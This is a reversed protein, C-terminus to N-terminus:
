RTRTLPPRASWCPAPSVTTVESVALSAVVGTSGATTAAADLPTTNNVGSYRAIGGSNAVAASLTWTYTTPEGAGAVRYYAYLRPNGNNAVPAAIQVWGSPATPTTGNLAISAVLVDEPATGVPKNIVITNVAATNV